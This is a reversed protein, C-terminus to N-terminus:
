EGSSDLHKEYWAYTEALGRDLEWRPTWGLEREIATSDLYQRDIEGHPTGEGRVDPEVDRGSVAVIRKVLEMVAIASGAGANWARGRLEPRDLSDAVALYADV